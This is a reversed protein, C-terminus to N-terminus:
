ERPIHSLVNFTMQVGGEWGRGGSALIRKADHPNFLQWGLFWRPVPCHESTIELGKLCVASQLYTNNGGAFM